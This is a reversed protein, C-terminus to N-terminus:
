SAGAALRDGVAVVDAVEGAGLAQDPLRDRAEALEVHQDVVGADQAVPHEDVHGLGLPVRHDLHVQLAGERRRM